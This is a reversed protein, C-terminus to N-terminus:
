KVAKIYQEITKQAIEKWEYQKALAIAKESKEQISTKEQVALIIKKAINNVDKHGDIVCYGAGNNEVLDGVFTEKTLICPIGYSLAEMVGVPMGEHRSTQIFYDTDKLVKVKEENFIADHMFVLDDLGNEKILAKTTENYQEFVANTHRMGYINFEVKNEVCFEKIQAVAKILSDIGKHQFNIRGIYTIKTIDSNFSKKINPITIGNPCVIGKNAFISNEKELESLFHIAKAHKLFKNFLLIYAIKKKLWKQKLSQKSIEGHPLVIYPVNNKDLVRYISINEINNVEHFVAIDVKNKNLYDQVSNAGKYQIVYDEHLENNLDLLHVNAYEAQAQIHQPVIVRVGNTFDNNIKAIHLINIREM